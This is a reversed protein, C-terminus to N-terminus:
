WLQWYFCYDLVVSSHENQFFVHWNIYLLGFIMWKNVRTNLMCQQSDRPKPISLLYISYFMSRSKLTRPLAHLIKYVKLFKHFPKKWMFINRKKKEEKKWNKCKKEGTCTCVFPIFCLTVKALSLVKLFSKNILCLCFRFM